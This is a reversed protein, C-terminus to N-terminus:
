AAAEKVCSLLGPLDALGKMANLEVPAPWDRERLAALHVAAGAVLDVPGAEAIRNLVQWASLWREPTKRVEVVEVVAQLLAQVQDGREPIEFLDPQLLVEEPDPLDERELYALLELAAGDGVAGRLAVALAEHDTDSAYAFALLRLAMEWTRPSPWASGKGVDDKPLRHTYDPRVTLFGTVARRARNVAQPFADPNLEPPRVHPWCGNLGRTVVKPDHRWPLHVFRNALPAALSWGNAASEPPNAAAVVRVSSPLPLSGVRRELVVRLLAAQVAPTASSLEDLFLLGERSHKLRIAWDPPAMPVGNNAPDAGPIPLGNFDTPDHVSAVVTELSLDLDQALRELTATKGIGPAGWLLVPLDAQVALALASLYPDRGPETTADQTLRILQAAIQQTM